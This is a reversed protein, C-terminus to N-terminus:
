TWIESLLLEAGPRRSANRYKTNIYLVGETILTATIDRIEAESLGETLSDAEMLKPLYRHPSTRENTFSIGSNMYHRAADIVIIKARSQREAQEEPTLETMLSDIRIFRGGRYELSLTSRASYNAKMVSFTLTESKAKRDLLLRGRATNEWATSGSFESDEPKATHGLLLIACQYEVALANLANMAQTVIPRENEPVAIMQSINDLIVLSYPDGLARAGHLTRALHLYYETPKCLGKSGEALLVNDRGVRAECEFRKLCTLDGGTVDYARRWLEGGDDECFQALVRGPTCPLGFVDAGKAVGMGVQMAALSKGVGGRGYLVTTYGVGIWGKIVWRRPHPAGSVALVDWDILHIVHDGKVESPALLAKVSAEVNLPADPVEVGDFGTINQAKLWTDVDDFHKGDCGGHHCKFGYSGDEKVFVATGSDDGDSHNSLWPCEVEHWGLKGAIPRRYLGARDLAKLRFDDEPAAVRGAGGVGEALARADDETAGFGELLAAISYHREPAWEQMRCTIGLTGYKTKRNVGVPLRVYRTVGKMGPDTGDVSLGKAVMLALTGSFLAGDDCPRDLIYGWQENGPSTELRWSPAPLKTAADRTVKTGVDDVVVCHGLLFHSKRRVAKIRGNEELAKFTSITFYNNHDPQLDRGKFRRGGWCLGRNEKPMADPADLFGTVHAESAFEGFIASLFAANSVSLSQPVASM